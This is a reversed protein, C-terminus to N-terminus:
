ACDFFHAVESWNPDYALVHDFEKPTGNEITATLAEHADEHADLYFHLERFGNVTVRGVYDFDECVRRVLSHLDGELRDLVEVEDDGPLDGDLLINITLHWPCWAKANDTLDNLARNVTMVARRGNIVGERTTFVAEPSTDSM